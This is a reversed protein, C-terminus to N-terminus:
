FTYFLLILLLLLSSFTTIYVALVTHNFSYFIYVLTFWSEANKWVIVLYRLFGVKASLSVMLLDLDGDGPTWSVLLGGASDSLGPQPALNLNRVVSPVPCSVFGPESGSQVPASRHNLATGTRGEIFQATQYPGSFTSVLIKYLRGPTLSTLLHHREGSGLVLPPFVRTDNFLLTVQLCLYLRSSVKLCVCCLQHSPGCRM